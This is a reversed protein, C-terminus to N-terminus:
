PTFGWFLGLFAYFLCIEAKKAIEARSIEKKLGM